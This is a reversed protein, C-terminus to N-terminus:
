DLELEAPWGKMEIRREQGLCRVRKRRMECLRCSLLILLFPSRLPQIRSLARQRKSCCLAHQQNNALHFEPGRALAPESGAREQEGQVPCRALGRVLAREGARAVAISRRSAQAFPASGVARSM